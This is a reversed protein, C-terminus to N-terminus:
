NQRTSEYLRILELVTNINLSQMKTEAQRNSIETPNTSAVAAYPAQPPHFNTTSLVPPNHLTPQRIQAQFTPRPFLPPIPKQSTGNQHQMQAQVPPRPFMPPTTKQNPGHQHPPRIRNFMVDKLNTVLAGIKRKKLHKNDHLYDHPINENNVLHVNPFPSCILGLRSNLDSRRHDTADRRKLLSSILIKSSPYKQSTAEILAQFQSACSDVSSQEIDNTGVHIIIHSPRNLNSDTITKMTATITPCWLKRAHRDRSLRTTDIYKGNSDILIIIGDQPRNSEITAEINDTNSPPDPTSAHVNSNTTSPEPSSTARVNEQFGTSEPHHPLQVNNSKDKDDTDPKLDELVSFSNSTVVGDAVSIDEHNNQHDPPHDELTSLNSQLEAISNNLKDDFTKKTLKIKGKLGQIESKLKTNELKLSNNETELDSIRESLSQLNVKSAKDLQTIKDQLHQFKDNIAKEISQSKLVSNIESVQTELNSVVLKLESITAMKKASLSRMSDLSNRRKRNTPTQFDQMVPIAPRDSHDQRIKQTKGKSKRGPLINLAEALNQKLDRDERLVVADTHNLDFDLSEQEKSASSVSLDTIEKLLPFEKEAWFQYAVGQFMIVGTTLYVHITIILSNRSNSDCPDDHDHQSLDLSTTEQDIKLLKIEIEQFNSCTYDEHDIWKILYSPDDKLSEFYRYQFTKIWHLIRDKSTTFAACRASPKYLDLDIEEFRLSKQKGTREKFSGVVYKTQIEDM